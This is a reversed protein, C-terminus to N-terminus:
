PEGVRFAYVDFWRGMARSGNQFRVAEGTAAVRGYTDFWHEELGPVTERATRGVVEALGTQGLFAPNTELFRYDVPRGADFIVEVVCFGDDISNFLTHYRTESEAAQVAARRAAGLAEEAQRLLREREAEAEKREGIDRFYCALGGMEDPYLSVDIWRGIVPSVVEYHAVRRGAMAELHRRGSESGVAQPFEEWYSRGLLGERSRGWLEEAKRNVYTFRFEADVAYFADGISELTATVRAGAAESGALLREREDDRASRARVQVTTEFVTVLVGGVSGDDDPVPSYTLTFFAEEPVGSRSVVLPQDTFTASEGRGAVREYVPQNFPWVEPWCERTPQGLGAPHKAGMLERYADNYIQVLRPGWLVIMAGPAALALSAVTRLSAPWEEVPGLPTAAWETQRCLARMEGPGAFLQAARVRRRATDTM